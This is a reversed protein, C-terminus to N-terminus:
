IEIKASSFLTRFIHYLVGLNYMIQDDFTMLSSIILFQLNHVVYYFLNKKNTLFCDVNDRKQSINCTFQFVKALFTKIRRCGVEVVIVGADHVVTWEEEPVFELDFILKISIELKVKLLYPPEYSVSLALNAEVSRLNRQSM